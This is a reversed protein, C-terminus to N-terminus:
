RPEKRDYMRIRFINGSKFLERDSRFGAAGKHGGGKKDFHKAIMSCDIDSRASYVSYYYGKGTYSYIIGFKYKDFLEGLAQTSKSPSNLVVCKKDNIKIFFANNKLIKKNTITIYKQVIAGRAIVKQPDQEWIKDMPGNKYLMLGSNFSISEPYQHVWRDYDDVLQIIRELNINFIHNNVILEDYTIMAGSRNMDIIMSKFLNYKEVYDKVELSTKHHDYWYVNGNAQISVKMLNEITKKNFSYGLIFVQEGKDVVDASPIKENYNVPFFDNNSIEKRFSKAYEYVCHAAAKGAASDHYFIKM